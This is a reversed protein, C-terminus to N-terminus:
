DFSRRTVFTRNQKVRATQRTYKSVSAKTAEAM